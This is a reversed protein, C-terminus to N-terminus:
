MIPQVIEPEFAFELTLSLLEVTVSLNLSNQLEQQLASMVEFSWFDAPIASKETLSLVYNRTIAFQFFQEM